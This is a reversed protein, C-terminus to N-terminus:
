HALTQNAKSKSKAKIATEIYATILRHPVGVVQLGSSNIIEQYQPNLDFNCYYQEEVQHSQGEDVSGSEM